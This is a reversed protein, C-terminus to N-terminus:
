VKADRNHQKGCAVANVGTIEFSEAARMTNRGELEWDRKRIAFRV